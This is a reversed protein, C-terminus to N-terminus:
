LKKASKAADFYFNTFLLMVTTNLSKKSQLIACFIKLLKTILHSGPLDFEWLKDFTAMLITIIYQFKKIGPTCFVILSPKQWWITYKFAEKLCTKANWVVSGIHLIALSLRKRGMPM